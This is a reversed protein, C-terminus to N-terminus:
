QYRRIIGELRATPIRGGPAGSQAFEVLVAQVEQLAQQYAPHQPTIGNLGIIQAAARWEEGPVLDISNPWRLQRAQRPPPKRRARPAQKYKRLISSLERTPLQGGRPNTRGFRALVQQIEGLAKRYNPHDTTIGNLGLIQAAPEWENGPTLNIQQPWKFASRRSRTRPARKKRPKPKPKPKAQEKADPKRTSATRPPSDNERADESLQCHDRYRFCKLICQETYYADYNRNRCCENCQARSQSGLAFSNTSAVAICGAVVVFLVPALLTGKQM